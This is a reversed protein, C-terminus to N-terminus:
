YAIVATKKIECRNKVIKCKSLRIVDLSKYFSPIFWLRLSIVATGQIYAAKKELPAGTELEILAQMRSMMREKNHHLLLFIRLLQKYDLTINPTKHLIPISEGKLLKSMDSLAELAGQAAATLIVLLPSGVNLLENQPKLLAEMTRIALLMVYMEGYAATYNATCSGFGYLIYEVEQNKLSHNATPTDAKLTRYNFKNIVYENLYLEDRFDTAKESFQQIWNMSSQSTKEAADLEYKQENRYVEDSNSNYSHYKTYLGRSSVSADGQLTQYQQRYPDEALISCGQNTSRATSLAQNLKEKQQNKKLNSQTYTHQRQDELAGQKQRFSQIQQKLDQNDQRYVESVALNATNLNHFKSILGNFGAATKSLETRYLAFYNIDYIFIFKYIENSPIGAESANALRQKEDNLQRNKEEADNIQVIISNYEDTLDAYVLQNNSSMNALNAETQELFNSAQSWTADLALNRDELLNELKDANESFQKSANLQSTVETKKFKNALELTYELPAIYKMEELIQQHFVTQNALSYISKLSYSKENLREDLLHIYRGKFEPTINQKIMEGFLQNAQEVEDNLAYIGYPQLALDFGAFVSRLGSKVAMESEREALKVRAYDILVAHFLFIPV